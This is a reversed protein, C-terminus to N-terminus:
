RKKKRPKVWLQSREQIKAQEPTLVNTEKIWGCQLCEAYDGYSDGTKNINGGCRPCRERILM